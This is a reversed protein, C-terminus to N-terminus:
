GPCHFFGGSFYYPCGPHARCFYGKHTFGLGVTFGPAPPCTRSAGSTNENAQSNCAAALVQCGSGNQACARLAKAEATRLTSGTDWGYSSPGAAVAGCFNGWFTTLVQCNGLANQGLFCQRIAASNAAAQSGYDHASGWSGTKSDYAIAGYESASAAVPALVFVLISFLIRVTVVM